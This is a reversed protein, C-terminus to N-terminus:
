DEEDDDQRVAQDYAEFGRHRGGPPGHVDDACRQSGDRGLDLGRTGAIPEVGLQEPAARGDVLRARQAAPRSGPPADPGYSLAHDLPRPRRGALPFAPEPADPAVCPAAASERPIDRRHLAVPGSSIVRAAMIGNRKSTSATLAARARAVARAAAPSPATRAAAARAPAVSSSSLVAVSSSADSRAVSSRSVRARARRPAPPRRKSVKEGRYRVLSHSASHRMHPMRRVFASSTRSVASAPVISLWSSMRWRRPSRATAMRVPSYRRPAVRCAIIARAAAVSRAASDRPKRWTRILM